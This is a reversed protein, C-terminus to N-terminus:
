KGHAFTILYLFSFLFEGMKEFQWQQAIAVVFSWFTQCNYYTWISIIRNYNICKKPALLRTPSIRSADLIVGKFHGNIDISFFLLNLPRQKNVSRIKLKKM